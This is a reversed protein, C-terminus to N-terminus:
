QSTFAYPSIFTMTNYHRITGNSNWSVDATVQLLRNTYLVGTVQQITMTGAYTIGNKSTFTTPVFTSTNLQTWGCTRLNEIKSDVVEAATLSERASRTLKGSLIIGSSFTLAVMTVMAVTIITEVLTFGASKRKIRM